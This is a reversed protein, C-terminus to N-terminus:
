ARAKASDDALLQQYFIALERSVMDSQFLEVARKRALTGMQQRKDSNDIMELMSEGLESVNGVEFMLGTQENDIADSIGYIRSGIAPIGSAAAEIIVSGFGERYSPLCFVDATNMYREPASTFDVFCVQHICQSCITMIQQRMGDEDPGVFLLRSNPKHGAIRAFAQALDLVGKDRNLRGLFLFVVDNADLGLEDRVSQRTEPDPKFRDTDVGSISGNALVTSKEPLVVGENILFQRQSASDVLVHTAMGALIRDMTKLLRRKFGQQTAWVQGTFTHLRIPVGALRAATMALLGAKPTVSHVLDYRNNSYNRYLSFLANIDRFISIKRDIAVDHLRNAGEPTLAPKRGEFNAIIDIDYHKGLLKIHNGLFASITM